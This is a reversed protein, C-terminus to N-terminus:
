RAEATTAVKFSLEENLRMVYREASTVFAGARANLKNAGDEGLVRVIPHGKAVDAFNDIALVTVYEMTSGGYLVRAVTYRKVQAKKLVPIFENKLFAEFELQKNPAVQVNTRIALKTNTVNGFSLEPRTQILFNRTSTVLPRVKGLFAQYGEAGLAKTMPNPGDFESMDAIATVTAVESTIGFVAAQWVERDKVGAKQLAPIVDSKQLAIYQPTAEPKVSVVQVLLLQPTMMPDKAASAPTQASSGLAGSAFVVAAICGSRLFATVQRTM